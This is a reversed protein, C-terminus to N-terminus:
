LKQVSSSNGVAGKWDSYSNGLFLYATFQQDRKEQSNKGFNSELVQPIRWSGSCTAGKSVRILLFVRAMCLFFDDWGQIRGTALASSDEPTFQNDTWKIFESLCEAERDGLRWCHSLEWWLEQAFGLLSLSADIKGSVEMRSSIGLLLM